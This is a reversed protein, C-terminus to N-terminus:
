EELTWVFFIPTVQIETLQAANSLDLPEQFTVQGGIELSDLDKTRFVGLVPACFDGLWGEMNWADFWGVLKMHKQPSEPDGPCYAPHLPSNSFQCVGSFEGGLFITKGECFTLM